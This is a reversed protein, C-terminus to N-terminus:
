LNRRRLDTWAGEVLVRAERWSITLTSQEDRSVLVFKEELGVDLKNLCGIVHGLDIIARGHSDVPHFIYDRVLTLPYYRGQESWNRDHEYEPRGLITDIKTMLRVLRSNELERNLHGVMTDNATISSDFFSILETSIISLFTELPETNSNAHDLLWTVSTCLRPSYFRRFLELAKPQSTRFQTNSANNTGLALILNGFLYLDHNKQTSLSLPAQGQVVDLIGCGSLRLRNDSTLIVKTPDVVKAALNAEHIAKLANSIQVIYSWLTQEPVPPSNHRTSYRNQPNFHKAALTEALPHYDTVFFLSPTGFRSNAFALHVTVVSGNRVRKWNQAVSKVDHHTQNTSVFGELRRLCYVNGDLSSVAKYLWSPYGLLNESRATPMDLSVLSHFQEVDPLQIGSFSRMTAETKKQLQQRLDEPIFFDQAARQNPQLNERHPGWAAYLHHQLPQTYNSQGQFYTSRGYGNSEQVYPNIQASQNAHAPGPQTTNGFPDYPTTQAMDLTHEMTNLPGLSSPVFDPVESAQAAAIWDPANPNYQKIPTSSTPVPTPNKPRFPAANAAKPSLGLPKPNPNNVSLSSPTFSPSDVNFRKKASEQQTAATHVKNPDHNFACGKEEYRCHGYITVNRCLTDKASERTKPRPSLGSRRTDEVSGQM